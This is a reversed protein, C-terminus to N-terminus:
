CSRSPRRRRRRRALRASSSVDPPVNPGPSSSTPCAPSSTSPFSRSSSCFDGHVPVKARLWPRIAVWAPVIAFDTGWKIPYYGWRLWRPLSLMELHRRRPTLWTRSTYRARDIWRERLRWRFADLRENSREAPRETFLARVIGRQLDGVAPDATILAAVPTPLQVGACESVVALSVLMLRGCGRRRAREVVAALDLHPWRALVGGVDRIWALRDWQHKAGHVCLALLLDEPALALV